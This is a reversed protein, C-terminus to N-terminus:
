KLLVQSILDNVCQLGGDCWAVLKKQRSRAVASPALFLLNLYVFVIQIGPKDTHMM